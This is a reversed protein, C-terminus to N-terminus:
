DNKGERILWQGDVIYEDANPSWYGDNCEPFWEAFTIAAAQELADFSVPEGGHGGSILTGYRGNEKAVVYQGGQADFFLWACKYDPWELLVDEIEFWHKNIEPTPKIFEIPSNWYAIWQPHEKNIIKKM